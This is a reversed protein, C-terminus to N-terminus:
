TEEGASETVKTFDHSGVRSDFRSLLIVCFYCINEGASQAEEAEKQEEENATVKTFGYAQVLEHLEDFKM